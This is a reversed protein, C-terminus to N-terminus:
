QLVQFTNAVTFWKTGAVNPSLVSPLEQKFYEKRFILVFAPPM